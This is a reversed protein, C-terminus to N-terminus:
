KPSPVVSRHVIYIFLSIIIVACLANGASFHLGREPLAHRANNTIFVPLACCPRRGHCTHETTESLDAAAAYGVKRGWVTSGYDRWRRKWAVSSVGFVVKVEGRRALHTDSHACRDTRYVARDVDAGVYRLV